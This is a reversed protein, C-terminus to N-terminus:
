CGGAGGSLRDRAEGVAGEGGGVGVIEGSSARAGGCFGKSAGFGVVEELVM